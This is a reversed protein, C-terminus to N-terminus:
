NQKEDCVRVLELAAALPNLRSPTPLVDDLSVQHMGRLTDDSLSEHDFPRFENTRTNSSSSSLSRINSTSAIAVLNPTTSRSPPSSSVISASPQDDNNDDNDDANNTDNNDTSSAGTDNNVVCADSAPQTNSTHSSPFLPPADVDLTTTALEYGRVFYSVVVLVADVIAADEGRVVIRCTHWARKQVGDDASNTSTTSQASNERRRRELQEDFSPAWHGM